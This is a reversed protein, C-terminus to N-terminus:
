RQGCRDLVTLTDRFRKSVSKEHPMRLWLNNGGMHAGDKWYDSGKWQYSKEGKLHDTVRVEPKGLLPELCRAVGEPDSLPENRPSWLKLQNLWGGQKNEWTLSASGFWPHDVLVELELESSQTAVSGPLASAVSSEAADIVLTPDITAVKSLPYGVLLGRDRADLSTTAGLAVLGMLKWVAEGRAEWDTRADDDPESHFHFSSGKPNLNLYTGAPYTAGLQSDRSIFRSGLHRKLDAVLPGVDVQGESALLSVGVVRNREDNWSLIASDFPSGALALRARNEDLVASPFQQGFAVQTTGLPTTALKAAQVGGLRAGGGTVSATQQVAFGVVSVVVAIALTAGVAMLIPAHSSRRYALPQSAQPVQEPPTWTPPPRWGLPTQQSLTRTQQVRHSSSCYNCRVIKTGEKVDLPAGCRSCEILM